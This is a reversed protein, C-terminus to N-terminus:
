KEDASPSHWAYASIGEAVKYAPEHTAYNKDLICETWQDAERATHFRGIVSHM